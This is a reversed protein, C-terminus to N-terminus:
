ESISETELDEEKKEEKEETEEEPDFNGKLKAMLVQLKEKDICGEKHLVNLVSHIAERRREEYADQVMKLIELKLPAGCYSCYNDEELCVTDCRRCIVM